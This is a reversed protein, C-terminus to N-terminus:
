LSGCLSVLVESLRRADIQSSAECLPIDLVFIGRKEVDAVDLELDYRGYKSDIVVLDLVDSPSVNRRGDDALSVIRDVADSLRMGLQEPDVGTNPVYVKSCPNDLIAGAVGRPLLHCLVSSFFSGMPYCILDAQRIWRLTKDSADVSIRRRATPDDVLFVEEIPSDISQKGKGTFEAQGHIFRGSRLRVALHASQTTTPSVIGQTQLLRGFLLLVSEMDGDLAMYGGALVLNGVSAGRLDFGQPREARFTRLYNIIFKQRAEPIAQVLPHDGHCLNLLEEELDELAADESFRRSFLEYIETNGCVSEDALSVLRSRLDGISPMKLAERLWRSSGGSDFTTVVHVSRHTFGKL